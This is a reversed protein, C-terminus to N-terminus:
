RMKLEDIRKKLVDIQSDNLNLRLLLGCYCSMSYGLKFPYNLKNYEEISARDSAQQITDDFETILTELDEINM